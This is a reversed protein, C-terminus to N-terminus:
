QREPVQDLRVDQAGKSDIVADRHLGNTLRQLEGLGRKANLPQQEAGLQPGPGALDEQIAVPLQDVQRRGTLQRNALHELRMQPTHLPVIALHRNAQM